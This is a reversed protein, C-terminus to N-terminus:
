FGLQLALYVGNQRGQNAIPGLDVYALVASLNQTPFWAAFADFGTRETAFRLNDPRTRLEAGVAFRRSLLLAASGEFQASYADDRDGGHGLLGFQNARTLRLTGNLLVGHELFLKTAAVYLDTGAADKAGVARVITRETAVKHQVGVSLQPWWRDQDAVVDGFLRVKAGFIDQGFTFGEGLGLRRGAAGTDFWQHQYTLELRDFLGVGIGVTGLTFDPLRVVTGQLSGGWQDRSGYGTILAWPALGGGGAGELSIAGTTALLRGGEPFRPPPAAAAEDARAPGAAILLATVLPILAPLALLRAVM